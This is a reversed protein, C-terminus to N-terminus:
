MSCSFGVVYHCSTASCVSSKQVTYQTQWNPEETTMYTYSLKMAGRFNEMWDQRTFTSCVVQEWWNTSRTYSWVERPMRIIMSQVLLATLLLVVHVKRRSSRRSPQSIRKRSSQVDRQLYRALLLTRFRSSSLHIALSAM